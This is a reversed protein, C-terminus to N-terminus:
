APSQRSGQRSQERLYAEFQDAPLPRSFLYGQGDRCGMSSLRDRQVQTEIGEAITQLGLQDALQLIMRAISYDDELGNEGSIFSRDIKLRDVKLQRLINLSSYGTGFDDIATAV